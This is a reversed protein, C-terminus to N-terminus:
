QLFIANTAMKPGWFLPKITRAETWTTRITHCNYWLIRISLLFGNMNYNENTQSLKQAIIESFYWKPDNLPLFAGKIGLKGIQLRKNTVINSRTSPITM